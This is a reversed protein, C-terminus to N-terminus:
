WTVSVCVQVRTCLLLTVFLQYNGHSFQKASGNQTIGPFSVHNQKGDQCCVACDSQPNGVDGWVNLHRHEGEGGKQEAQPPAEEGGGPSTHEHADPLQCATNVSGSRQGCAPQLEAEPAAIVTTHQQSM